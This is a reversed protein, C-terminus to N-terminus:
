FSIKTPLSEPLISRPFQSVKDMLVMKLELLLCGMPLIMKM